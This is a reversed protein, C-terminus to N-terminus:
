CARCPMGPPMKGKMMPAQGKAMPMKARRAKGKPRRSRSSAVKKPKKARDYAHRAM